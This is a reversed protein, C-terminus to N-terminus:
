IAKENHPRLWASDEMVVGRDTNRAAMEKNYFPREYHEKPLAKKKPDLSKPRSVKTAAWQIKRM